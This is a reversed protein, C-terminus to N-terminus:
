SIPRLKRRGGVERGRDVREDAVEVAGEDALVGHQPRARQRRDGGGSGRADMHEHGRAPHEPRHARVELLGLEAVRDDAVLAGRDDVRAAPREEQVLREIQLEGALRDRQEVLGTM